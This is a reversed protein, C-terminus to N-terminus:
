MLSFCNNGRPLEHNILYSTHNSHDDSFFWSGFKVSHLLFSFTCWQGITGLIWFLMTTNSPELEECGDAKQFSYYESFFAYAANTSLNQCLFRSFFFIHMLYVPLKNRVSLKWWLSQDTPTIYPFQNNVRLITYLVYWTCQPLLLVFHQNMKTNFKTTSTTVTPQLTNISKGVHKMNQSIYPSTNFCQRPKMNEHHLQFKLTCQNVGKLKIIAIHAVLKTMLSDQIKSVIHM